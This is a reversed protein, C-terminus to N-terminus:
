DETLLIITPRAETNGPSVRSQKAFSLFIFIALFAVLVGVLLLLITRRSGKHPENGSVANAM